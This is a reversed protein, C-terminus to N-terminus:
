KGMVSSHFFENETGCVDFTGVGLVKKNIFFVPYTSKIKNVFDVQEKHAM